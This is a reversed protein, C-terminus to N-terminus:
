ATETVSIAKFYIVTLYQFVASPMRELKNKSLDLEILNYQGMFNDDALQTINNKQLDLIRLKTLGWFSHRGVAPVNSDVIRLVELEKLHTFIPGITLSNKPGYIEIINVNTDFLKAPIQKM